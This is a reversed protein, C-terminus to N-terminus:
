KATLVNQRLDLTYKDNLFAHLFAAADKIECALRPEEIDLGHGHREEHLLSYYKVLSVIQGVKAFFSDNKECEYNADILGLVNDQWSAIESEIMKDEDFDRVHEHDLHSNEGNYNTHKCRCHEIALLRLLQKTDKVDKLSVHAFSQLSFMTLLIFIISKKM